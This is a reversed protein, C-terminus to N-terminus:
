AFDKDLLGSELLAEKAAPGGQVAMGALTARFVNRTGARVTDLANHMWCTDGDNVDERAAGLLDAALRLQRAMPTDYGLLPGIRSAMAEIIGSAQDIRRIADGLFGHGDSMSARDPMARREIDKDAFM